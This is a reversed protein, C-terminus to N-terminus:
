LEIMTETLLIWKKNRKYRHELGGRFANNNPMGYDGFM